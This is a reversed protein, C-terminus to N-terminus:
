YKLDDEAYLGQMYATIQADMAAPYEYGLREATETALHRFLPLMALLARWSDAPDFQAWINHLAKWTDRDVWESLQKGIHPPNQEHVIQAHWEMMQLLDSKMTWDRFKVVWLDRGLIYQAVHMAEFWFEKIIFNFAEQTPPLKQPPNFTPPPLQSALGDKDLATYYGRQYMGNMDGTQAMQQLTENPLLAFDVKKGGAFWVLRTPYGEENSLRFCLWVDGVNALWDDSAAYISTDTCFLQVDLDSWRNRTETPRAMSGVVMVARINPQTDAWAVIREEFDKM